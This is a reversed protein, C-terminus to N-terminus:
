GGSSDSLWHVAAFLRRVEEQRAALASPTGAVVVRFLGAPTQAEYGFFRVGAQDLTGVQSMTAGGVTIEGQGTTPLLSAVPLITVQVDQAITVFYGNGTAPDARGQWEAPLTVQFAATGVAPVQLATANLLTPAMLLGAALGAGAAWLLARSVGAREEPKDGRRGFVGSLLERLGSVVAAVLFSVLMALGAPAVTLQYTLQWGPPRHVTVSQDLLGYRYATLSVWALLAVAVGAIAATALSLPWWGRPLALAAAAAACSAAVLHATSVSQGILVAFHESERVAAPLRQGILMVALPALGAAGGALAGILLPVRWGPAAPVAAAVDGPRTPQGDRWLWAAPRSAPDAPRRAALPLVAVPLVAFLLLAALPALGLGSGVASAPLYRWLDAFGLVVPGLTTLFLHAYHATALWITIVASVVAIHAILARRPAVPEAVARAVRLRAAAGVWRVVIWSLVIMGLAWVVLGQQGSRDLSGGGVAANITLLPSVALGAGLGLGVRAILPPAAGRVVERLAIRWAATCVVTALLPAVLLAAAPIAWRPTVLYLLDALSAQATGASIGAAAAAWGSATFLGDPDRLLGRRVGAPPHTRLPRPWRQPTAPQAALLRDLAAESGWAAARDDAYIERARLLAAITLAVLGALVATRWGLRLLYSIDRFAFIVVVPLVALSAFAWWVSIAYYTWPVDRNAVHGLEHRIVATFGPPDLAQTVVLGGTVGLQLDRGAGFAFGSVAPNAVDLRIGPVPHVGAGAALGAVESVLAQGDEPDPPALQRRRIRWRPLLRYGIWGVVLILASGAGAFAAQERSVGSRCQAEAQLQATVTGVAGGRLDGLQEACQLIVTAFQQARATFWLSQFMYLSASTVAALVLLFRIATDSPLCGPRLARM